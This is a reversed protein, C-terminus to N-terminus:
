KVVFLFLIGLSRHLLGVHSNLATWGVSVTERGLKATHLLHEILSELFRRFKKLRNKVVFLWAGINNMPERM